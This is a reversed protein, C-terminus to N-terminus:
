LNLKKGCGTCYREKKFADFMTGRQISSCSDCVRLIRFNLFAILAVTPVLMAAFKWDKIPWVM